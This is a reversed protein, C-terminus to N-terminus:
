DVVTRPVRAAIGCLVEYPITGTLKAVDAATVKEGGQEGILVVEDGVEVGAVDTVDV